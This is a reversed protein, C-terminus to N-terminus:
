KLRTLFWEGFNILEASKSHWSNKGNKTLLENFLTKNSNYTKNFDFHYKDLDILAKKILLDRNRVSAIKTLREIYKRLSEIKKGISDESDFKEFANILELIKLGINWGEKDNKM